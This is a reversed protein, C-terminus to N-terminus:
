AAVYHRVGEDELVNVTKFEDVGCAKLVQVARDWEGQQALEVLTAAQEHFYAHRAM